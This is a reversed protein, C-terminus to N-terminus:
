NHSPTRVKEGVPQILLDERASIQRRTRERSRAVAGAHTLLARATRLAEVAPTAEVGLM